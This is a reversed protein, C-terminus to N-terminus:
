KGAQLPLVRQNLGGAHAAAVVQWNEMLLKDVSEADAM